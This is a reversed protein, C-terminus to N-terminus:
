KESLGMVSLWASRAADAAKDLKNNLGVGGEDGSLREIERHIFPSVLSGNLITVHELTVPQGM